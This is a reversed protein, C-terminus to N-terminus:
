WARGERHQRAQERDIEEHKERLYTETTVRGKLAARLQRAGERQEEPTPRRPATAVGGDLPLKLGRLMRETVLLDEEPLEEILNHLREKVSM